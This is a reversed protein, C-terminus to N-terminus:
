PQSASVSEIVAIATYGDKLEDPVVLEEVTPATIMTCSKYTETMPEMKIIGPRKMLFIEGESDFFLYYKFKIYARNVSENKFEFEGNIAAKHGLMEHSTFMGHSEVSIKTRWCDSVTESVQFEYECRDFKKEPALLVYQQHGAAFDCYVDRTEAVRFGDEDYYTAFVFLNYNTDTENTVDFLIYDRYEYHFRKERVTFGSLADQETLPVGGEDEPLAIPADEMVSLNVEGDFFGSVEDPEKPESISKGRCSVLSLLALAALVLSVIRKM